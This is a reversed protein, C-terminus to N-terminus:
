SGKRRGRETCIGTDGFRVHGKFGVGINQDKEGLGFIIVREDVRLVRVQIKILSNKDDVKTYLIHRMARWTSMVVKLLYSLTKIM